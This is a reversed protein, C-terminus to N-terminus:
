KVYGKRLRTIACRPGGRCQLELGLLPETDKVVPRQTGVQLGSSGDVRFRCGSYGLPGLNAFSYHDAALLDRNITAFGQHSEVRRIPAELALRLSDGHEVAGGRLKVSMHGRSYRWPGEEWPWGNQVTTLLEWSRAAYVLLRLMKIGGQSGRGRTQLHAIAQCQRM